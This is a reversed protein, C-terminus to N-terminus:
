SGCCADAQKPKALFRAIEDPTLHDIAPHGAPLAAAKKAAGLESGCRPMSSGFFPNKTGAARQFWRGKGVVPAMPCQFTRLKLQADVGTTRLFDVAATSAVAFDERAADIDKRGPLLEAGSQKLAAKATADSAILADIATRLQPEIKQYAAFDDAALAAAADTLVSALETAPAPSAARATLLGLLSFLPILLRVLFRNM